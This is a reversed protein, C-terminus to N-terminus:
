SDLIRTEGLNSVYNGPVGQNDTNHAGPVRQNNHAAPVRQDAVDDFTEAEDVARLQLAM